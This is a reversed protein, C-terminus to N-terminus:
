TPRGMTADSGRRGILLPTRGSCTNETIQRILFAAVDGRAIFGSRWSRRDTLVQYDSTAPGRTLIGPRVITWDLGSSRIIEEQANKDDYIRQLILPFLIRAHLFGSVGRSDGAEIGTVAILRRVRASQMADVLVRSADSFLTTGSLVTAPTIPVGLSQIVACTGDLARVIAARDRADASIKELQTDNIAIAHASRSMARVQFGAALGIKVATLGVGRSAGIILVIPM